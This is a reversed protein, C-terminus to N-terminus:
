SNKNAQFIAKNLIAYDTNACIIETQKPVNAVPLSVTAPESARFLSSSCCAVDTSVTTFPNEKTQHQPIVVLDDTELASIEAIAESLEAKM